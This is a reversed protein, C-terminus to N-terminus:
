LLDRYQELAVRVLQSRSHARTKSFLRELTNKVASGTMELTSAIERNPLGELVLRLIAVERSNLPPREMDEPPTSDSQVTVSQEESVDAIIAARKPVAGEKYTPVV